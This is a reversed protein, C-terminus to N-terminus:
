RVKNYLISCYWILAGAAVETRVPVVLLQLPVVPSNIRSQKLWNVVGFDAVSGVSELITQLPM